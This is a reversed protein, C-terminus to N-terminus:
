VIGWGGCGKANPMPVVALIALGATLYLPSYGAAASSLGGGGGVVRQMLCQCDVALIALGATLYLPSHVLWRESTTRDYQLEPPGGAQM